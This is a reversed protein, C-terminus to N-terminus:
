REAHLIVGCAECVYLTRGARIEAQRQLPISTFCSGCVGDVLPALARTTRGGRVRDYLTRVSDDIRLARNERRDREVALRESLDDHRAQIEALREGAASKAEAVAAAAADREARAREQDQMAELLNTEALDLNQRAAEVEARSALHERMNHIEQARQQLRKLTARGANVTREAARMSAEGSELKGAVERERRELDAIRDEWEVREADLERLEKRFSAIELDMEQLSLLEEVMSNEM